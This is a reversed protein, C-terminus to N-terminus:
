HILTNVVEVERISRVGHNLFFFFYM